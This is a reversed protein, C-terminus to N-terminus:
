RLRKHQQQAISLPTHCLFNCFSDGFIHYFSHCSLREAESILEMFYHNQLCLSLFFVLVGDDISRSDIPFAFNGCSYSLIVQHALSVTHFALTVVFFGKFYIEEIIEFYISFFIWENYLTFSALTKKERWGIKKNYYEILKFSSHNKERETWQKKSTFFRVHFHFKNNFQRDSCILFFCVFFHIFVFVFSSLFYFLHTLCRVFQDSSSKISLLNEISFSVCVCEYVYMYINSLTGM